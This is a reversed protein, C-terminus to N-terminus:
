AGFIAELAARREADSRGRLDATGLETVVVDVMSRPTSVPGTLRPVLTSEGRYRSPLAIVSLGHRSRAAAAMYDTHGGIGAVVRDGAQEVGVQGTVDIQLAANVAFLDLGSLRTSDHTVEVRDLLPRGDAWEYLAPGGVLYAGRPLGLLLGRRDLEAVGDGIIGSDIRVPTRAAVLAAVLAAGLAGPGFQLTAGAPVLGAVRDAICATVDDPATAPVSVPPTDAQSVVTLQVGALLDPRAAAPAATSVEALCTRAARAAAAMWAAEAGFELGRPTEVVSIVTVDPRWVTGLLAPLQSLNVPVYRAHGAAVASALRYGGMYTRVEAFASLDLGAPWGLLWGTILRVGGAARAAQSLAACVASPMGTGDALAVTCGPRIATRLAAAADQMLLV